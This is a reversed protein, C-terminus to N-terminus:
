DIKPLLGNGDSYLKLFSIKTISTGTTIISPLDANSADFRRPEIPKYVLSGAGSAIAQGKTPPTNSGARKLRDWELCYCSYSTKLKMGRNTKSCISSM